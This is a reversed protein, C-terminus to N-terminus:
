FIIECIAVRRRKRGVWALSVGAELGLTTAPDEAVLNTGHLSCRCTWPLVTVEDNSDNDNDNEHLVHFM